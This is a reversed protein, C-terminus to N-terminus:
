DNIYNRIVEVAKRWHKASSACTCPRPERKGQIKLYNDWIYSAKDSPIHTTISNITDKLKDFEEQTYINQKM